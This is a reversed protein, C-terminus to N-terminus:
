FVDTGERGTKRLPYEGCPATVRCPRDVEPARCWGGFDLFGCLYQRTRNELLHVALLFRDTIREAWLPEEAFLRWDPCKQRDEVCLLFNLIWAGLARRHYKSNGCFAGSRGSTIWQHM